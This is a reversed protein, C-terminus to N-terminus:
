QEGSNLKVTAREAGEIVHLNTVIAGSSDIIFGTGSSMGEDTEARIAVVGPLTQELMVEPRLVPREVPDQKTTENAVASGLGLFILAILMYRLKEVEQELAWHTVFM